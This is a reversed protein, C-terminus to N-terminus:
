FYFLLFSDFDISFSFDYFLVHWSRLHYVLGVHLQSTELLSLCVFSAIKLKFSLPYFVSQIALNLKYIGKM